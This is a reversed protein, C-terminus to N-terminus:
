NSMNQRWKMKMLVNLLGTHFQTIYTRFCDLRYLSVTLLAATSMLSMQQQQLMELMLMMQMQELDHEEELEVVAAVVSALHEAM